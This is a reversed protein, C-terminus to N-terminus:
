RRLGSLVAQLFAGADTAARLTALEDARSKGRNVVLIPIGHASAHRVFRFGSFVMLSSGVVLLARAGAIVDKIHLVTEAAVTEGFFVVDPKLMGHCRECDHVVFEDAAGPPLAADGDPTTTADSAFRSLWHPNSAVLRTQLAERPTKEGCSLCVVRDIRGHLDVVRGSGAAQHLGDVNQTVLMKSIGLHELEAVADHAANPRASRMREFGVVSRSWYRRRSALSSTFESFQIPKRHKWHGEDDRYEPIGSETSVGAGTLIVVEGQSLVEIFRDPADPPPAM